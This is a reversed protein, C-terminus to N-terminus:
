TPQEKHLGLLGPAFIREAAIDTLLQQRTEHPSRLDTVIAADYDDKIEALSSHLPLGLFGSSQAQQDIVAVIKIDTELACIAAIEALDSKGALVVRRFGKAAVEQLVEACDARARRFFGLSYTLYEITLRSKESFGLPTLYYFYRKAPANGVKVLGKKICRKLYANVLGLAIGLEAAILRQSQAGNREVSELIGLVIRTNKTNEGQAVSPLTKGESIKSAMNMPQVDLTVNM